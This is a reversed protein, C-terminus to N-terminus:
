APLRGGADTLLGCFPPPNRKLFQDLRKNQTDSLKVAANQMVLRFLKGESQHPVCSETM